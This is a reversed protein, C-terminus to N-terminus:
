WWRRPMSRLSWLIVPRISITGVGGSTTFIIILLRDGLQLFLHQFETPLDLLQLLPQILAVPRRALLLAPMSLFVCPTTRLITRIAPVAPLAFRCRLPSRAPITFTSRICAPKATLRVAPARLIASPLKTVIL